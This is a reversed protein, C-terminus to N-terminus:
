AYFAHAGITAVYPRNRSAYCNLGARAFFLATPLVEAGDLVLKAAIVSEANPTRGFNSGYVSTFQNKQHLVDYINSPFISSNVRNMVVNGVAIKGALIQNGSEAYIIRSLWYLSDADYFSDGPTIYFHDAMWPHGLYVTKQEGDYAVDLNFVKALVRVPAAVSNNLLIVGDKVYLYRGSAVIYTAGATVTMNLTEQVVNATNGSGDVMQEMKASTVTVIGNEEEVTANPDVMAVFSSVTVYTVGNCTQYEMSYQPKFDLHFPAWAPTETETAAPPPATEEAPVQESPAAALAPLIFSVVALSALLSSVARKKM